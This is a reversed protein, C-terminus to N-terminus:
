KRHHSSGCRKMTPRAGDVAREVVQSFQFFADHIKFSLTVAEDTLGHIIEGARKALRAPADPVAERASSLRGAFAELAGFFKDLDADIVEQCGLFAQRFQTLKVSALSLPARGLSLVDKHLARFSCHESDEPTMLKLEEALESAQEQFGARDSGEFGELSRLQRGFADFARLVAGWDKFTANMAHTIDFEFTSLKEADPVCHRRSRAVAQDKFYTARKQVRTFFRDVSSDLGKIQEALFETQAELREVDSVSALASEAAGKQDDEKAEPGEKADQVDAEESSDAESSGSRSAARPEEEAEDAASGEAESDEEATGESGEDAEERAKQDAAEDTSGEAEDASEGVTDEATRSAKEKPAGKVTKDSDVDVIVAEALAAVDMAAEESATDLQDKGVQAKDVAESEEGSSKRGEANAAGRRSSDNEQAEEESEQEQGSGEGAEEAAGAAEGDAEGAAAAAGEEGAEESRAVPHREARDFDLVSGRAEAADGEDQDAPIASKELQKELGAQGGSLELVTSFDPARKDAVVGRSLTSLTQFIGGRSPTEETQVRLATDHIQDGEGQWGEQTTIGYVSGDATPDDAPEPRRWNLSVFPGKSSAQVLREAEAHSRATGLYVAHSAYGGSPLPKSHAMRFNSIWAWQAPAVAVGQSGAEVEPAAALPLAATADAEPTVLPLPVPEVAREPFTQTPGLQAGATTAPGTPLATATTTTTTTSTTTASTTAKPLGCEAPCMVSLAVGNLASGVPSDRGQCVSSYSYTCPFSATWVGCDFKMQDHCWYTKAPVKETIISGVPYASHLGAKVQLHLPESDALYITMTESAAGGEITVMDGAAFAATSSVLVRQDGAAARSLLAASAASPV